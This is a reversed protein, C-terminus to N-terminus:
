FRRVTNSSTSESAGRYRVRFRVKKLKKLKLFTLSEKEAERFSPKVKKSMEGCLLANANGTVQTAMVEM